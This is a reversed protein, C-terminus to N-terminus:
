DKRSKSPQIEMMDAVRQLSSLILTQEWEKLAAFKSLFDLHLQAPASELVQKGAETLEIWVQRKDQPKRIRQILGKADLRDLITTITGQSLSVAKSLNNATLTGQSFLARLVSLQSGTLGSKQLQKSQVDLSQVIRRLATLVNDHHEVPAQRNIALTAVRRFDGDASQSQM